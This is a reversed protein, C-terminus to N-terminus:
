EEGDLRREIRGLRSIIDPLRFIAATERLAARHPRAPNGSYTAGAPVDKFVAGRAAVRAGDGITLHGIAGVQGGLAVGRGVRTSGAIGVQAVIMCDEGIEVNHGLHVLSDIKTRAGVITDGISGRDITCNGGIEVADGIVCRGVQPIRRAGEPTVTFGFGENGLRTGPGVVVRDGLVCCGFISAGHQIRCGEGIEAGAGVFSGPGVRSGAGIRAGREIVAHPGVRVDDGLVAEDDVVATAHVGPEPEARPYFLELVRAFAAEPHEVRLIAGDLPPLDVGERVLVAGPDTGTLRGAVAAREVFTIHDPGADGAPAVGRLVRDGDGELRAGVFEAMRAAPYEAM